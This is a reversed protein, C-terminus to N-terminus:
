PKGVFAALMRMRGKPTLRRWSNQVEMEMLNKKLSIVKIAGVLAGRRAKDPDLWAAIRVNGLYELLDTPPDDARQAV